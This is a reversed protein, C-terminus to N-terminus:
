DLFDAIFFCRFCGLYFIHDHCHVFFPWLQLEVLPSETGQDSSPFFDHTQYHWWFLNKKALPHIKPQAEIWPYVCRFIPVVFDWKWPGSNSKGNRICFSSTIFPAIPTKVEWGRAWTHHVQDDSNKGENLISQTSKKPVSLCLEGYKQM